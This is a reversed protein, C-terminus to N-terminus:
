ANESSLPATPHETQSHGIRHSHLHHLLIEALILGPTDGVIIQPQDLDMVLLALALPEIRQDVLQQM